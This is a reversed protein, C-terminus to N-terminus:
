SRTRVLLEGAQAPRDICSEVYPSETTAPPHPSRVARVCVVAANVIVVAVLLLFLSILVGDVTSNTVVTHMDALSKAPPLVQGAHIADAYRARQAFFGVKPDDSVPIRAVIGYRASWSRPMRATSVAPPTYGRPTVPSRTITASNAPSATAM